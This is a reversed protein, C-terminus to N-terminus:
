SRRFLFNIQPTIESTKMKKRGTMYSNFGIEEKLFINLIDLKYYYTM